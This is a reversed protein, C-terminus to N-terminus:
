GLGLLRHLTALPALGFALAGAPVLWAALRTTRSVTTAAAPAARAAGIARLCVALVLGVVPLTVVLPAGGYAATLAAILALRGWAAPSPPVGSLALWALRRPRSLEVAPEALLLPAVMLHSLLLLLSGLRAADEQAALGLAILGLDAVLVRPYRDRDPALLATLSSWAATVAGLPLMVFGLIARSASPLALQLTQAPLVVAPIVFVVYPLLTALRGSRGSGTLWGGFPVLALLAAVGTALLGGALHLRPAPLSDDVPVFPAAAVMAAAGLATVRLGALTGRGPSAAVRAMGIIATAGFLAVGYVLPSGTGLAVVSLAGGSTVALIEGADAPPALLWAVTMALAGLLAVGAAAQGLAFGGPVLDPALDSGGGLSAVAVAAALLPVLVAGRLRHTRTALAAALLGPAIWAIVLPTASM